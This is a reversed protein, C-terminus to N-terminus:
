LFGALRLFVLALSRGRVATAAAAGTFISLLSLFTGLLLLFASLSSVLLLLVLLLRFCFFCFLLFAFFSLSFSFSVASSAASRALFSCSLFVAASAFFAWRQARYTKLLRLQPQNIRKEAFCTCTILWARVFILEQFVM